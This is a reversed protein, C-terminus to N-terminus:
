PRHRLSYFSPRQRQLRLIKMLHISTILKNNLLYYSLEKKRLILLPARRDRAPRNSVHGVTISRDSVPLLETILSSEKLGNRYTM